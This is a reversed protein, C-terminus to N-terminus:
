HTRENPTTPNHQKESKVKNQAAGSNAAFVPLTLVFHVHYFHIQHAHHPLSHSLFFASLIYSFLAISFLQNGCECNRNCNFRSFPLLLLPMYFIFVFSYPPPLHACLVSFSVRIFFVVFIFCLFIFM